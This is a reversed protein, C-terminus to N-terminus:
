LIKMAIAACAEADALAHHHNSLDYGCAEAVVHLQHCPLNLTRRSAALTCHFEYGPYPMGYEEFVAKLCSEDFPRNHAVLPLGAIRDQVQRWVESFAPQGDTDQRTLGHVATAWYTYYNPAPQILSYFKDVVKGGRVIVIGVSCVSSRRGNATEFDIAAFDKM